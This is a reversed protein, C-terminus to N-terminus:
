IRLSDSMMISFRTFLLLFILTVNYSIIRDELHKQFWFDDYHSGDDNDSEDSEYKNDDTKFM